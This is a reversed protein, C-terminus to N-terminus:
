SSHKSADGFTGSKFQRIFFLFEKEKNSVNIVQVAM